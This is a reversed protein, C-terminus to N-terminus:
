TFNTKRDDRIFLPIGGSGSALGILDPAVRLTKETRELHHGFLDELAKDLLNQAWTNATLNWDIWKDIAQDKSLGKENTFAESFRALFIIQEGLLYFCNGKNSHLFLQYLNRTGNNKSKKKTDQTDKWGSKASALTTHATSNNRIERCFGYFEDLGERKFTKKAYKGFRKVNPDAVKNHNVFDFLYRLEVLRLSWPKILTMIQYSILENIEPNEATASRTSTVARMFFNVETVTQCLCVLLARMDDTLGELQRESIDIECVHEIEYRTM